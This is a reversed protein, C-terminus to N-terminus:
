LRAHGDPTPVSIWRVPPGPQGKDGNSQGAWSASKVSGTSPLSRSALRGPALVESLSSSRQSLTNNPKMTRTQKDLFTKEEGLFTSGDGSEVAPLDSAEPMPPKNNIRDGDLEFPIDTDSGSGTGRTAPDGSGRTTPAPRRTPPASFDDEKLPDPQTARPRRPSEFGSPDDAPSKAPATDRNRDYDDKQTGDKFNPDNAPKLSGTGSNTVGSCSGAGCAGSACPNCCSPTCCDAATAYSASYAGGYGAYGSGYYGYSPVGGYGAGWWDGFPWLCCANVSGVSGFFLGVSLVARILPNM